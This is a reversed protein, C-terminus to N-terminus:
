IDSFSRLSGDYNGTIVEGTNTTFNFSIDYNNGSRNITVSGSMAADEFTCNGNENCSVGVDAITFTFDSRSSSDFNYTGSKLGSQQDTWLEFYIVDGTGNFDGFQDFSVSPSVLTIDFNFSNGSGGYNILSGKNLSFDNGDYTFSGIGNGSVDSGSDDDSDCSFLTCAVFALILISKLTKM